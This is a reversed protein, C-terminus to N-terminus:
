QQGSLSLTVTNVRAKELLQCIACAYVYRGIINQRLTELALQLWRGGCDKKCSGEALDLIGVMRPILNYYLKSGSHKLKWASDIIDTLPISNRILCDSLDSNRGPSLRKCSCFNGKGKKYQEDSCVYCCGFSNIEWYKKAKKSPEGTSPTTSSSSEEGSLTGARRIKSKLATICKKTRPSGM